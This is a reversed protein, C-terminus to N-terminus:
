SNRDPAGFTRLVVHQLDLVTTFRHAQWGAARAGDVNDQSDDFFVVQEPAVGLEAAVREFAAVEPKGVGLRWAFLCQDFAADIATLEHALAAEVLPGNNTFLATRAPAREVARLVRADPEYAMAWAARIDEAREGPLGLLGLLATVYEEETFQGREGADEFGSEFVLQDITAPPLGSLETLAHLRRDPLWRAAVGGLDLVLVSAAGELGPTSM